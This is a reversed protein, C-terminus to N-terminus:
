ECYEGTEAVPGPEIGAAAMGNLAATGVATPVDLVDFISAFSRDRTPM